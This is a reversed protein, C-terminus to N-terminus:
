APEVLRSKQVGAGKICRSMRERGTGGKEVEESQCCKLYKEFYLGQHCHLEQRELVCVGLYFFGTQEQIEM